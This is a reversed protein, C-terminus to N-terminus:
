KDSATWETITATNTQMDYVIKKKTMAGVPTCTYPIAYGSTDGGVSKPVFWADRM